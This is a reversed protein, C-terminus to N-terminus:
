RKKNCVTTWTSPHEKACAKFRADEEAVEKIMAQGKAKWNASRWDPIPGCDALTFAPLCTPRAAFSELVKEFTRAKGYGYDIKYSNFWPSYIQDFWHDYALQIDYGRQINKRKNEPYAKLDALAKRKDKKYLDLWPEFDASYKAWEVEEKEWTNMESWVKQAYSWDFYHEAKAYEQGSKLAGAAAELM